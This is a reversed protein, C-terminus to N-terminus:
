PSDRGEAWSEAPEPEPEPDPEPASLSGTRRPAPQSLERRPAAVAPCPESADPLPHGGSLVDLQLEIEALRQTSAASSVPPAPAPRSRLLRCREALLGLVQLELRTRLQARRPLERLLTMEERPLLVHSLDWSAGVAYSFRDGDVSPTTLGDLGRSYGIQWGQGASVRLSPLLPALHARARLRQTAGEDLHAHAVAARVLARTAASPAARVAAPLGALLLVAMLLGGRVTVRTPTRGRDPAARQERTDAVRDAQGARAGLGRTDAVRIGNM